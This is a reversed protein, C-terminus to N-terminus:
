FNKLNLNIRILIVLNILSFTWVYSIKKKILSIKSFIKNFYNCNKNTEKYKDIVLVCFKIYTM